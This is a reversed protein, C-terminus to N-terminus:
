TRLTGAIRIRDVPTVFQHTPLTLLRRALFSAGPYHGSDDRLHPRLAEIRDLPAPYSRVVGLFPSEVLDMDGPILVPLRLYVPEEHNLAGVPKVRPIDDLLRTLDRAVERRGTTVQPLRSLMRRAIGAQFPTFTECPFRSDYLSAGIRLFPLSRPLWYLRPHILLSLLFAKVLLRPASAGGPPQPLSKLTAGLCKDNTVIIGGDLANINKGRSLSFLGAEGFSGVPKGKFQAGMAQAADDIVSAGMRSAVQLIMDLDAPYGFLHCAVVALTEHNVARELSDPVPNLSEPDVDYLAVRFGANVVASPVSFSTYAPLAVVNRHPHLTHLGQLLMSLAARGSSVLTVHEVPFTRRLDRCFADIATDGAFSATIGAWLDRLTIPLGAPPLARLM